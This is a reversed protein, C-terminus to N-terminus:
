LHPYSNVVPGINGTTAETLSNSVKIQYFLSMETQLLMDSHFYSVSATSSLTLATLKILALVSTTSSFFRLM